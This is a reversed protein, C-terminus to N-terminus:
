NVYSTTLVVETDTIVINLQKGDNTIKDKYREFNENINENLNDIIEQRNDLDNKEYKETNNIEKSSIDADVVYITNDTLKYYLQVSGKELSKLQYHIKIVKGGKIKKNEELLKNNRESPNLMDVSLENETDKKTEADEGDTSQETKEENKTNESEINNEIELENKNNANQINVDNDKNIFYITAGIIIILLVILFFIVGKHMIKKHEKEKYRKAM